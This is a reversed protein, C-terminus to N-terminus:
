SVADEDPIFGHVCCYGRASFDRIQDIRVWTGPKEHECPLPERGGILPRSAADDLRIGSEKM